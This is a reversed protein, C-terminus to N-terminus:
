PTAKLVELVPAANLFRAAREPPLGKAVDQIVDSAERFTREAEDDRGLGYLARGLAERSKWRGPPSGLRDADGVATQLEAVAAPGRGMGLLAEALTTRAVTEYKLRRVPRAMDIARQAWEAAVEPGDVHLAIEARAAAVKGALYWREWATSKRADDWLDRFRVEAGGVDGELLETQLLDMEANMWPMNFSSWGRAGRQSLSEESRRRAEVLDYVDRYAMTSYNLLVRVPRGLERGLAIVQDFAAFAEEYQGMATLALGEMGGGRLLSEASNPDVALERGARALELVREYRGTWYHQDSLLHDHEALDALRTGSVWVRLAREGLELAEELDGANGRMAHGQSLRAMAPGVLESAGLQEALALARKSSKITEDTRETWHAACGIALLAEVEDLGRLQPLLDRLETLAADFDELKVRALGRLLRIRTRLGEDEALELARQFLDMAENEAWATQAREAALLLYDIAKAPEGAERWHYALLRALDKAQEPGTEEIYRAVAAHRERRAVRPLTAYAVDRILMHKFTFETDGRVQSLPERRILDRAELTALAEDISYAGGLTHLAGSWFTRGIVSADLLLARPGPPLADLRSAIAAKVTTPLEAGRDAGELLSATLEEVFLPNGEALEVLRDVAPGSPQAGALVHTAIISSDSPSLPELSITTMATLGSGWGERKDLLEPRALALFLAPTERVMSGIYGLLDLEGSDAWHIDEFVFLTPRELALREIFRRAAFFLLIREDVPDDLGLGLLLSLYRTLEPVEPETVLAAVAGALKQRATGPPDHEFIGAVQRVQQSFAGYVARTDYPLCRGRIARGGREDIRGAIERALRSKGIGPPGIVAVLHPRREGVAREWISELLAMERHRGVLPSTTVPRDAPGGIPAVALWAAVPERKGKAAIAALPEYRIVTRTAHYTEDGVILRGTPAATQLRSATNVVDGMALAEGSPPGSGIAVVAEGTNVAGRAALDLGPQERNLDEIAELVRLGARVAREADDGHATPAGFVAMVADGIFKEVTGGYQEIQQKVHAHYAQLTDRVDEPDAQDSRSTFGVLDVFLVSVLKREQSTQLPQSLETGCKLCFRAHDPNTEGCAPCTAM